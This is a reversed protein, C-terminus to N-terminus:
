GIQKLKAVLDASIGDSYMGYANVLTGKVLGDFSSIAYVIMEDGPDTEGEFRYAADIEFESSKLQTQTEGCLLCDNTLNFNRTYGKATLANIAESVTDYTQM